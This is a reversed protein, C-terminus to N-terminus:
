KSSYIRCCFLVSYVRQKGQIAKDQCCVSSSSLNQEKSSFATLEPGLEEELNENVGEPVASILLQRCSSWLITSLIEEFLHEETTKKVRMAELFFIDPVDPCSTRKQKPILKDTSGIEQGV